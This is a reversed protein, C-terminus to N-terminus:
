YRRRPPPPPAFTIRGTALGPKIRYSGTTAYGLQGLPNASGNVTVLAWNPGTRVITIARGGAAVNFRADVPVERGAGGIIATGVLSVKLTEGSQTPVGTGIPFDGRLAGNTTEVRAKLTIIETPPAAALAAAGVLLALISLLFTKRRLITEITPTAPTLVSKLFFGRPPSCLVYAPLSRNLM